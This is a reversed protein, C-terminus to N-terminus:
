RYRDLLFAILLYLTSALYSFVSAYAAGEIGWKPILFLDFILCVLFGLIVAYLCVKVRQTGSFYASVSMTLCFPLIGILLIRIIPITEAYASGFFFNVLWPFCGFALLGAVSAYLLLQKTKKLTNNWNILRDNEQSMQTYMVSQVANPLLWIMQVLLVSITYVGLSNLDKEFYHIFWIDM